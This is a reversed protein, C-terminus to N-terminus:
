KKNFVLVYKVGDVYFRITSHSYVEKYTDKYTKITECKEVYEYGIVNHKKSQSNQGKDAGIVGGLVAGAAAGKDDGTVGKGLLGGVIMGMLAGGAASGEQIKEGYVPVKVDTCVVEESPVKTVITKTHDFVTVNTPTQNAMAPTAAVLAAAIVLNKM